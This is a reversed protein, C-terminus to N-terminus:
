IILHILFELYSQVAGWETPLVYLIHTGRAREKYRERPEGSSLWHLAM